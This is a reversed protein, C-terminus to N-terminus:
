RRCQQNGLSERRLYFVVDLRDLYAPEILQHDEKVGLTPDSLYLPQNIQMWKIITIIGHQAVARTTTTEDAPRDIQAQNVAVSM